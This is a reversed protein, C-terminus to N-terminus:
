PSPCTLNGFEVNLHCKRCLTILNSLDNAAKYDGNFTDYPKIHHVDVRYKGSRSKGCIRCTYNDRQLAKRRQRSINAGRYSPNDSQGGKWLPHNEGKLHESQAAFKCEMSCYKGGRLRIQHVNFQHPKGCWACPKTVLLDPRRANPKPQRAAFESRCQNSCFRGQRSPWTTFTKQCYECTCTKQGQKPRALAWCKRSCFRNPDTIKKTITRGCHECAFTVRPIRLTM